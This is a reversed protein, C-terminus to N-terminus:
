FPDVSGLVDSNGFYNAVNVYGEEGVRAPAHRLM